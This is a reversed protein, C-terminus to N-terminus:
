TFTYVYDGIGYFKKVISSPTTSINKEPTWTFSYNVTHPEVTVYAYMSLSDALCVSTDHTATNATVQVIHVRESDVWICGATDTLKVTYSGPEPYTYDAVKSSVISSGDGFDWTYTPQHKSVASGTFTMPLLWCVSTDPLTSAIHAGIAHGFSIPALKIFSTVT